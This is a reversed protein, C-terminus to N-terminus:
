WGLVTQVRRILWALEETSVWAKRAVAARVRELTQQRSHQPHSLADKRAVSVLQSALDECLLWRERREDASQGVVYFGDSLRACIKPQVGPVVGPVADCPFEEPVDVPNM